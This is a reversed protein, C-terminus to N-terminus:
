GQRPPAFIAQIRALALPKTFHAEFGAELSRQVDEPRSLGSIAFFRAGKFRAKLKRVMQLGDLYPMNIDMFVIEPHFGPALSMAYLPNTAYEVTHGAARLMDALAAVHEPDDDVILVRQPTVNAPDVPLIANRLAPKHRLSLSEFERYPNLGTYRRLLAGGEAV